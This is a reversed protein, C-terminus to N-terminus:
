QFYTLKCNIRQALGTVDSTIGFQRTGEAM